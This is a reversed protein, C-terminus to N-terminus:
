PRTDAFFCSTALKSRPSRAMVWFTRATAKPLSDMSYTFAILFDLIPHNLEVMQKIRNLSRNFYDMVDTYHKTGKLYHSSIENLVMIFLDYKSGVLKLITQKDIGSKDAVGDITALDYGHEAFELLASDFIRRLTINREEENSM